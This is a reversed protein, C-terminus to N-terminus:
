PRDSQEGYDVAGLERGREDFTVWRGCQAGGCHRGTTRRAGGPWFSAFPGDPVGGRWASEEEVQGSEFWITWRGSKRGRDHAGERAKRGNRHYEVFPGHREGERFSEETRPAGGDYWTRAPGERRPRGAPDPAECWQELGDPPAEGRLEAGPPCRLASPAPGAALTLAAVLAIM